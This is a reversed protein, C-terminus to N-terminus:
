QLDSIKSNMQNLQSRLGYNQKSENELQIKLEHMNGVLKQNEKAALNEGSKELIEQKLEDVEQNGKAYKEQVEQYKKEIEENKETLEQM